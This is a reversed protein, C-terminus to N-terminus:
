IGEDDVLSSFLRVQSFVITKKNGAEKRIDELIHIAQRIKTSLELAGFQSMEGECTVCYSDDEKRVKKPCLACVKSSGDSQVNLASLTGILSDLDDGTSNIQPTATASSATSSSSEKQPTPDLAEADDATKGAVLTPHSCAQRM